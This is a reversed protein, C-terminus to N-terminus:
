PLRHERLWQLSQQIGEGEAEIAWIADPANSELAVCVDEVPISGRGLGLHEDRDGNNDHLHVYGIRNGLSQIWEVVPTLSNCHAHGIDLNARLNPNGVEDIIGSLVSPGEELMNELHVHIDTPVERMFTRWFDASREIWSPEPGARPVRGHHYVIHKAGLQLAIGLGEQIRQRATERVLPDFSGTNLDGFPGHMAVVPLGAVLEVTKELLATDFLAKPNFFAQVEIGFGHHRCLDVVTEPKCDDCILMCKM